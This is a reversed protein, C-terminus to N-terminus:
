IPHTKSSKQLKFQFMKFLYYYNFLIHYFFIISSAQCIFQLTYLTPIGVWCLQLQVICFLIYMCVSHPLSHTLSEPLSLTLSLSLSLSHTTPIYPLSKEWLRVCKGVSVWVCLCGCVGVSLEEASLTGCWQQFTHTHTPNNTHTHTPTCKSTQTPRNTSIAYFSDVRRLQVFM